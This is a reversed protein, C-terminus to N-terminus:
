NLRFARQRPPLETARRTREARNGGQARLRRRSADTRNTPQSSRAGTTEPRAAKREETPGPAGRRHPAGPGTRDRKPERPEKDRTATTARHSETANAKRKRTPGPPPGQPTTGGQRPPRREATGPRGGRSKDTGGQSPLLREAEAEGRTEPTADEQHPASETPSNEIRTEHGSPSKIQVYRKQFRHLPIGIM